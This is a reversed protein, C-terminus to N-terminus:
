QEVAGIQKMLGLMDTAGWHETVKGDKTRIIDIGGFEVTRGTPAVGMLEGQHTGTLVVHVAELDGDVLAPELTKVTIDPFATRMVNVFFRIGERGAPQGPLADEHDTYDEAAREDILSLDGGQLTERYFRQILGTGSEM